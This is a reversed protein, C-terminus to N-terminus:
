ANKKEKIVYGIGRVTEIIAQSDAGLKKRLYHIYIEVSNEMATADIGWIRDLIQDKSLVRKPNRLFLELLQTEKATLKKKKGEIELEARNIYLKVNLFHLIHDDMLDKPRRVLARVRALLEETAFPKVLYDDAGTDLGKVRDEIADRATLFIVPTKINKSRISKLIELGSKHPLMIDLIIVDYIDRQAFYEGEEGDFSLDVLINNKELIKSLAVALAKEDEVLLIRMGM